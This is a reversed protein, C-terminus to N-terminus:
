SRVVECIMAVPERASAVVIPAWDVAWRVDKGKAEERFRVLEVEGGM